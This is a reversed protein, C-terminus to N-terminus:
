TVILSLVTNNTDDGGAAEYWTKANPNGNEDKLKRIEGEFVDMCNKGNYADDSNDDFM